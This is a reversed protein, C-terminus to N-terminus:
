KFMKRRLMIILAVLIFIIAIITPFVWHMSLPLVDVNMGYFSFIITPFALVLTVITLTKIIDNANNSIIASFTDMTGELIGAYITCTEMAQRLEIFVDDLLEEDDAYLKISRRNRIRLLTAEDSKLSASFYVLSKQLGLMRILEANRMTQRLIKEDKNFQRDINRLCVQFRQSIFLAMSFIMRSRQATDIGKIRGARMADIVRCNPYLALTVIIKSSQLVLISLPRTEYQVSDLDASEADDEIAPYDLVVLTQRADEDVDVHASEELDYMSALLEPEVELEDALWARDDATPASVHVWCGEVPADVPALGGEPLTKFIEIM